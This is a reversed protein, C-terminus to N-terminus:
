LFLPKDDSGRPPMVARWPKGNSKGIGSRLDWGGPIERSGFRQEIKGWDQDNLEVSTSAAPQGQKPARGGGGSQAPTGQGAFYKAVAQTKDLLGKLNEDDLIEQVEATTDGHIVIWPADFGAGGKLTATIKSNTNNETMTTGKKTTTAAPQPPNFPNELKM